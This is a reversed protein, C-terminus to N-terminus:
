KQGHDSLPITMQDITWDAAQAFEDGITIQVTDFDADELGDVKRVVRTEGNGSPTLDINADRTNYGFNTVSDVHIVIGQQATAVIIPSEMGFIRGGKNTAMLPRTTVYGQYITGDDDLASTSADCKLIKATAGSRGVYPKLDRSMSTAVTNAFLASTRCQCSLGNHQSWGYRVEGAAVTRGKRVDFVVKLTPENDTDVSLFWWVQMLKPYFIGHGVKTTASLNVRTALDRVDWYCRELGAQGLRYAGTEAWFYVAANGADDFSEIIMSADVNGIGGAGDPGGGTLKRFLYPVVPDGTPTAQHIERYKFIFIRSGSVPGGLGTIGGGNREGVDDYNRLGSTTQTAATVPVREDDATGSGLVPSWWIRSTNGTTAYAGGGLLRNGDSRLYRVSTWLTYTGLLASLPMASYTSPNVSDDYTTTGIVTGSIAVLTANLEYFLVNDTSGEVIWHTVTEGTPV